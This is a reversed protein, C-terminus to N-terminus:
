FPRRPAPWGGTEFEAALDASSVRRLTSAFVFQAALALRVVQLRTLGAPSYRSAVYPPLTRVIEEVLPDDCHSSEKAAREALLKLDHGKRGKFSDPDAGNWVLLAKLSLEVVMCISQIVSDVSFTSPLTNAADELNSRAMAWLTLSAPRASHEIEALGHAFDNMDAAAFATEAAIQRDERCWKWWETQSGFGLAQWVEISQGGFPVPVTVKRVQDVSAAIGIGLGPWTSSVEPVLERYREVIKSTEPNPLVAMLLDGGILEMAARLPRAHHSVGEAAYKRDLDLLDKDTWKAM